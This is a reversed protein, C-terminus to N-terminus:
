RGFGTNRKGRNARIAMCTFRMSFPSTATPMIEMNMIQMERIEHIVQGYYSDDFIPPLQFVSDLMANFTDRGGMLGILAQPDHFV